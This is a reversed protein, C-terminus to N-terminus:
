FRSILSPAGVTIAFIIAIDKWPRTPLCAIWTAPELIVLTCGMRAPTHPLSASGLYWLHLKTTCQNRATTSSSSSWYNILNSSKSWTSVYATHRPDDTRLRCLIRPRERVDYDPPSALTLQVVLSVCGQCIRGPCFSRFQFPTKCFASLCAFAIMCHHVDIVMGSYRDQVWGGRVRSLPDEDGDIVRHVRSIGHPHFAFPDPM